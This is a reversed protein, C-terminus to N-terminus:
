NYKNKLSSNLPLENGKIFKIKSTKYVGRQIM